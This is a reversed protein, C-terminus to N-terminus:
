LKGELKALLLAVMDSAVLREPEISFEYATEPFVFREFFQKQNPYWRFILANDSRRRAQLGTKSIDTWDWKLEENHYEILKDEFYVYKKRDPSKLLICVRKDEVEQIQADKNVKEVYWHKLLAAGLDETPSDSSLSDFGLRIAKKFIDARQIVVEHDCPLYIARQVAKVSWGIKREKDIVDFLRKSRINKLPDTTEIGKAYAFIAEWIFDEVDDIFPIAFAARIGEALRKKEEDNLSYM